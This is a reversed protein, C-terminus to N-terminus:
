ILGKKRAAKELNKQFDAFLNQEVIQPAQEETKRMFGYRRMRGTSHGKRKRAFIKTRTKTKRYKTGDEAWLLVPKELGRRNKHYGKGKGPKVSIMFGSGFRAPYVRMRIGKALKQKTGQGLGSGQLNAAALKKLNNGERRMAGRMAKRQEALDLAQYVDKFPNNLDVVQNAM